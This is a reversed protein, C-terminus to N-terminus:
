RTRVRSALQEAIARQEAAVPHYAVAKGPRSHMDHVWPEDSCLVHDTSLDAVDIFGAGTQRAASQLKANIDDVLYNVTDVSVPPQAPFAKCASEPPPTFRPYGVVVMYSSPAKAQIDRLATTLAQAARIVDEEVTTYIVTGPACPQAVCIRFIHELLDNDEIGMGVTVLDTDKKVADLQAAVEPKGKMPRTKKKLAQTSAGTCSVDRFHDVKLKKALLAPYNGQSRLCGDDGTTKGAYPAATFGDGLAVYSRITNDPPPPPSSSFGGGCGAVGGILAVCMLAGAARRVPHSV